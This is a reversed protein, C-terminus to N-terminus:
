QVEARDEAANFNLFYNYYETMTIGKFLRSVRAFLCELNSYLLEIDETKRFAPNGGPMLESSHTMFHIYSRDDAICQEVIRPLQSLRFRKPSLMYCPPFIVNAIRKIPNAPSLNEMMSRLLKQKGPYVTVPLELLSSAGSLKVNEIDLLYPGEPFDTYDPGGTGNPDGLHTKWSVHPTVSCDVHYGRQLLLKAYVENFGWRGARHVKIETQFIDELTSTLYDIKQWMVPESYEILYPQNHFDDKGLAVQPPSNWAHLHMGIEARGRKLIETGFEQFVPDIAMEYNTLYSPKLDYKDCLEQFRTIFRSNRTTIKQPRSWLNDGETDVSIVFFKSQQPM